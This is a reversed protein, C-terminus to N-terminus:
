IKLYLTRREQCCFAYAFHDYLDNVYPCKENKIFFHAQISTPPALHIGAAATPCVMWAWWLQYGEVGGQRAVGIMCICWRVCEYVKWVLRLMCVRNNRGSEKM